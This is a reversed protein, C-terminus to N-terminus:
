PSHAGRFACWFPFRGSLLHYAMMGVSWLDAARTYKRQFVDPAQIPCAWSLLTCTKKISPPPAVLLVRCCDPICAVLFVIVESAHAHM